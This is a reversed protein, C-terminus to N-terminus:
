RTIISKQNLLKLEDIVKFLQTNIKSLLDQIDGLSGTKTGYSQASEQQGFMKSLGSLWDNSTSKASTNAEESKNGSNLYKEALGTWDVGESNTKSKSDSNQLAQNFLTKWDFSDSAGTAGFINGANLALTIILLIKKM